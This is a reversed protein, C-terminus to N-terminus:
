LNRSVIWTHDFCVCTAGADCMSPPAGAVGNAAAAETNLSLTRRIALARSYDDRGATAGRLPTVLPAKTLSFGGNAPGLAPDIKEKSKSQL